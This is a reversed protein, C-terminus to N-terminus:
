RLLLQNERTAAMAILVQSSIVQDARIPRTITGEFAQIAGNQLTLVVPETASLGSSTNNPEGTVVKLFVKTTPIAKTNITVTGTGRASIEGDSGPIRRYNERVDGAAFTVFFVRGPKGSVKVTLTSESGSIVAKEEVVATRFQPSESFDNVEGSEELPNIKLSTFFVPVAGLFLGTTGMLKLAERRSKKENQM